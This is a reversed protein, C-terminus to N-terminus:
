TVETLVFPVRNGPLTQECTYISRFNDYIEHDAREFSYGLIRSWLTDHDEFNGSYTSRAFIVDFSPGQVIITENRDIGTRSDSITWCPALSPMNIPM